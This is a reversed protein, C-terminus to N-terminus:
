AAYRRGAHRLYVDDLSPRAVTVAAVGIGASELAALAAPVAAAGDDARASLRRGDFAVERLGAVLAIVQRATPEDPPQRLELHVADGRLEEKLQEPTGHAVVRGGDVIALRAALRDAEDLYHTTLLIAMSEGAALRGIEAWMAARGEPDLGTTPEDLFLVGPRHVLALAVDLRRQMGGSWGRVVRDAAGTLDFRELLDDVRRRLATARVGFLRGQLTLNERGSGMPDLASRQAVVGIERRVREPHRLVDHGAVEARGSDPRALTTLIKVTTSKGAGNPGLLGFVEGPRVDLSLGDLARVGGPYSKRLDDATVAHSM